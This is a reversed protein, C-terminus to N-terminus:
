FINRSSIPSSSEVKRDQTSHKVWQGGTVGQGTHPDKGTGQGLTTSSDLTLIYVDMNSILAGQGGDVTVEVVYATSHFERSLVHWFM